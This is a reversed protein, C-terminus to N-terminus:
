GGTPHPLVHCTTTVHRQGDSWAVLTQLSCMVSGTLHLLQQYNTWALGLNVFTLHRWDIDWIDEFYKDM